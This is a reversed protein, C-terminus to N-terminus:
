SGLDIATTSRATSENNFVTFDQDAVLEFVLLEERGSSTNLVIFCKFFATCSFYALLSSNENFNVIENDSHVFIVLIPLKNRMIEDALRDSCCFSFKGFCLNFGTKNGFPDINIEDAIEPRTM